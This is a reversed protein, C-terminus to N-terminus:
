TLDPTIYVKVIGDAPDYRTEVMYSKKGESIVSKKFVFFKCENTQCEKIESSLGDYQADGTNVIDVYESSESSLPIDSLFYHKTIEDEKDRIFIIFYYSHEAEKIDAIFMNVVNKPLEYQVKEQSYLGLFYIEKATNVLGNGLDNAKRSNVSEYVNKGLFNTLFFISPLIIGLFIIGTLILYEM